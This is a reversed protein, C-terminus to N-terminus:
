KQRMREHMSMCAIVGSFRAFIRGYMRSQASLAAPNEPACM